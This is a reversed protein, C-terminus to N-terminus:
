CGVLCVLELADCRTRGDRCVVARELLHAPVQYGAPGYGAAASLPASVRALCAPDLLGASRAARLVAVLAYRRLNFKFAFNSSPVDYKLKLHKTEPPKLMPKMPDVQVARGPRRVAEREV